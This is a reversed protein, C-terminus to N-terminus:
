VHPNWSWRCVMEWITCRFGVYLYVSHRHSPIIHISAFTTFSAGFNLLQLFNYGLVEYLAYVMLARGVPITIYPFTLVSKALLQDHFRMESCCVPHRIPLTEEGRRCQYSSPVQGRLTSFSCITQAKVDVTWCM